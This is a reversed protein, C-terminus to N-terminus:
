AAPRVRRYRELMPLLDFYENRSKVEFRIRLSPDADLVLHGDRLVRHILDVPARNLAVVQVHRGLLQELDGELDLPLGDLTRAPDQAYLVGVDVDSAETAKGTAVSGFLYAVSVKRDAASFFEKLAAEIAPASLM